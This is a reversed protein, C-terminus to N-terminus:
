NYRGFNNQFFNDYEYPDKAGGVVYNLWGFVRDLFALFENWLAEVKSWNM